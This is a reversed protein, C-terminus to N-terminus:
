EGGLFENELSSILTDTNDERSKVGDIVDQDSPTEKTLQEQLSLDPNFESVSERPIIGGRAFINELASKFSKFFRASEADQDEDSEFVFKGEADITTAIVDNYATAASVALQEIAEQPNGSLDPLTKKFQEIMDPGIKASPAAIKAIGTAVEVLNGSFTKVFKNFGLAGLARTLGGFLRGGPGAGPQLLTEAGTGTAELLRTTQGFADTLTRASQLMKLRTRRFNRQQAAAFKAEQTKVEKKKQEEGTAASKLRATEVDEAIDEPTTIADLTIKDGAVKTATFDKGFINFVGKGKADIDTPITVDGAQDKFQDLISQSIASEVEAGTTEATTKAAEKLKEQETPVALSAEKIATINERLNTINGQELADERTIGVNKLAKKGSESDIFSELRKKAKM